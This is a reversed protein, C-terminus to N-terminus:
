PRGKTEWTLEPGRRWARVSRKRATRRRAREMVRSCPRAILAGAVLVSVILPVFKRWGTAPTEDDHCGCNCSM